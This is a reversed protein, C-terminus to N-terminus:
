LHHFRAWSGILWWGDTHLHINSNSPRTQFKLQNYTTLHQILLTAIGDSKKDCFTWFRTFELREFYSNRHHDEKRRTEM